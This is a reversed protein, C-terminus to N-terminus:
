SSETGYKSKVDVSTIWSQTLYTFCNVVEIGEVETPFNKEPRDVLMM